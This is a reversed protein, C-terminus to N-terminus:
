LTPPKIQQQISSQIFNEQVLSNGGMVLSRCRPCEFYNKPEKQIMSVGCNPCIKEPVNPQDSKPRKESKKRQVYLFTIIIIIFVITIAIGIWTLLWFNNNNTNKDIKNNDDIEGDDNDSPKNKDGNNDETPIVIVTATGSIGSLNGYVVWTGPSKANFNGTEVITGGGSTEWTLMSIDLENEDADYGIATFTISKSVNIKVFEPTIIIHNLTGNTIMVTASASIGSLNAYIIWEGVTDAIFNGNQEIEGGGTVEWQPWIKLENRDEDYGTSYYQINDDTTITASQPTIIIQDLKGKTVTVSASGSISSVNAFVEWTGPKVATFNGSQDIKGGGIVEWKPNIDLRNGDADFGKSTFQQYGDTTIIAESPTILIYDLIGKTVVITASGSIGSDNAYVKWTGPTAATFNGSQDIFGGGSVCWIPFIDIMNNDKDFGIATFQQVEDTTINTIEPIVIIHEVRGFDVNIEDPPTFCPADGDSAFFQYTHEGAPLNTSYWYGKKNFFEKDNVESEFMSHNTGDISVTIYTPPNNDIDLYDITLNFLADINGSIPTILPSILTPKCNYAISINHLLPTTSANMTDFFVKYQIWRDGNHGVWTSSGSETYNDTKTGNPDLFDNSYLGFETSATRIKFKISTNISTTAVWSITKFNSGSGCDYPMSIFTGSPEYMWLDYKWTQDSNPVGPGGFLIVEPSGDIGAMRGDNAPNTSPKIFKWANDSFDYIWTEQNSGFLLVKDDGYITAMSHRCMAPPNYLTTKQTWTNASLDYIWTDKRNNNQGNHGGFLVIKDTNYITAMAHLYRNPPKSLPNKKTWKNLSLDYVWTEDANTGGGAPFGGFLVAKDDNYITAMAHGDVPSPTGSPAINTWNDRTINYVWTDSYFTNQPSGGKQGGFLLIENNLIPAMSHLYRPSPKNTHNKMTWNNNSLDYLWTENNESGMSGFMGGFLIIKDDGLVSSMEHMFRGKPKSVPNMSTWQGNQTLKIYASPGIGVINVNNLTGDIFDENTTQTWNSWVRKSSIADIDLDQIQIHSSSITSSAILFPITLMLASSILIWIVLISVVQIKRSKVDKAKIQM